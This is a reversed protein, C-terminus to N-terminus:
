LSRATERLADLAAKADVGRDAVDNLWAAEM